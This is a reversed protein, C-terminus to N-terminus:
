SADEARHADEGTNTLEGAVAMELARVVARRAMPIKFANSGAGVGFSRADRLLVDAAAGFAERSPPVGKSCRKPRPTAGRSTPWAVWRSAPVASRATAPSTSRRRWRSWRSRM